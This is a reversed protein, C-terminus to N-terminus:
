SLHIKSLSWLVTVGTLSSGAAEGDRTLCEVVSGSHERWIQGLLIMNHMVYKLINLCIFIIICPIKQKPKTQPKIDWDAAITMNLCDALSVM